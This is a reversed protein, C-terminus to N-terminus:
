VSKAKYEVMEEDSHLALVGTMFGFLFAKLLHLEHLLVTVYYICKLVFIRM